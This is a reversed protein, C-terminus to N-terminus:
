GGVNFSKYIKSTFDRNRLDNLLLRIEEISDLTEVSFRVKSNTDYLDNFKKIGNKLIVDSIDDMNSLPYEISENINFRVFKEIQKNM